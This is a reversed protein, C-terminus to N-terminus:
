TQNGGGVPLTFYLTAGEGPQSEVWIRGRHREVIRKCVALGIGTGPYEEKTYLRQFIIFIREFFEPAIGIGNDRVSFLWYDETKRASIHVEPPIENRFKIANAILNQFVQGLQTEDSMVIPLPDHTVVAESEELAIKLNTLAAALVEGSDTPAFPQGQTEVRSYLLLDNILVQMRAAGDVAFAIYEDAQADLKGQYRKALLQTFSSVMRLPEQLDHSAVYAFQQLEANSRALAETRQKLREEVEVRETIDRLITTFVTEGGQVLKSISAELPFESGDKRRGRLEQHEGMRRAVEAGEAFDRIHQRHAQAFREPLLLDLPQGLVEEAQYGFVREAAANFRTIQQAEDVSIIADAALELIGALREESARLAEAMRRRERRADADRLEREIAPVLRALDFKSIFDNAGAKLIAVAAAEGISGSVIIFPLDLDRDQVMKLADTASFQPLNYDALGIDWTQRELAASMEQATEVREHVAGLGGQGLERLLLLTDDESDEVILVRLPAKM